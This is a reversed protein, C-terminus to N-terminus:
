NPLVLGSRWNRVLKSSLWLFRLCASPCWNGLTQRIGGFLAHLQKYVTDMYKFIANVFKVSCALMGKCLLILDMKCNALMLNINNGLAKEVLELAALLWYYISEPKTNDGFDEYLPLFPLKFKLLSSHKYNVGQITKTSSLLSPIIKQKAEGAWFDFMESGRDDCKTRDSVSLTFEDFLYHYVFDLLIYLCVFCSVPVYKTPLEKELLTKVDLQTRVTRGEFTYLLNLLSLNLAQFGACQIDSIWVNKSIESTAWYEHIYIKMICNM